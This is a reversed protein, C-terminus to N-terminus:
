TGNDDTEMDTGFADSKSVEMTSLKETPMEASIGEEIDANIGVAPRSDLGLDSQM